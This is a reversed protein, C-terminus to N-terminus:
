DPFDSISCGLELSDYVSWLLSVFRFSLGARMLGMFWLFIQLYLVDCYM